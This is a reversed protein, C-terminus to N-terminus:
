RDRSIVVLGATILVINKALFEGDMTLVPFAPAFVVTPAIIAVSLTCFLHLIMLTAAQNALRDIVLGIAIMIEALGLLEIYPSGALFPVSNRLLSVVPSVGALKLMGFWFFIAALSFRLLLTVRIAEAFYAVSRSPSPRRIAIPQMSFLERQEVM